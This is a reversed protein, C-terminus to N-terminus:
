GCVNNKKDLIGNGRYTGLVLKEIIRVMIAWGCSGDRNTKPCYKIFDTKTINKKNQTCNLLEALEDIFCRKVNIKSGDSNPFKYRIFKEKVNVEKLCYPESRKRLKEFTKFEPESIRKIIEEATWM